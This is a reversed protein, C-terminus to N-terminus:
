YSNCRIPQVSQEGVFTRAAGEGVIGLIQVRKQSVGLLMNQLKRRPEIQLDRSRNEAQAKEPNFESDGREKLTTRPLYYSSWLELRVQDPKFDVLRMLDQELKQFDSDNSM